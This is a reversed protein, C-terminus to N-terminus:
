PQGKAEVNNKQLSFVTQRQRTTMAVGDCAAHHRQRRKSTRKKDTTRRHRHQSHRWTQAEAKCWHDMGRM